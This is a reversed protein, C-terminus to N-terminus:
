KVKTKSKKFQRSEVPSPKIKSFDYKISSQKHIIQIEFGLVDIIDLFTSIKFDVLNNEIEFIAQRLRGTRKALLQQSLGEETRIRLIFEAIQKRTM